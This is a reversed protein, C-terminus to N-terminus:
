ASQQSSSVSTPCFQAMIWANMDALMDTTLGDGDPYLQLAVSFGGSHLLRLDRLVQQNNYREEDPSVSLMIPLNRAANLNRFVHGGRPLPGGLSIAGAVLEPHELGVRLAMTGGAAHGAVFIRDPHINFREEAQEVCQRVRQCAEAIGDATQKWDFRRHSDGSHPGRPAVGVFNRTSVLPMLQRLELESSNRGHLWVVLPYAYGREYHIPSFFCNPSSSGRPRAPVPRSQQGIWDYTTTLSNLKGTPQSLM